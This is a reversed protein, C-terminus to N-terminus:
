KSVTPLAVSTNLYSEVALSYFQVIFGKTKPFLIFLRLLVLGHM